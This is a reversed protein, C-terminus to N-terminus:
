WHLWTGQRTKQMNFCNISNAPPIHMHWQLVIRRSMHLYVVLCPQACLMSEWEYQTTSLAALVRIMIHREAQLWRRRFGACVCGSSVNLTTPHHDSLPWAPLCSESDALRISAHGRRILRQRQQLLLAQQSWHLHSQASGLRCFVTRGIQCLAAISCGVLQAAM